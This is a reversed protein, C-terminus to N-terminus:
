WVPINWEKLMLVVRYIPLGVVNFFCGQVKEVFVAGKGQIAYVAKDYPEKSAAYAKIEEEEINRMWVLTEERSVAEREGKVLAVATVVRHVRGSLLRLAMQAEEEDKPKGLVRKECIVATDAGLILNRPYEASISKAKALAIDELANEDIIEPEDYSGKVVKFPIGIQRLLQARRPSASAM